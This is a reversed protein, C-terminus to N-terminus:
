KWQYGSRGDLPWVGRIRLSRSWCRSWVPYCSILHSSCASITEAAPTSVVTPEMLFIGFWTVRHEMGLVAPGVRGWTGAFSEQLIVTTQASISSQGASLSFT